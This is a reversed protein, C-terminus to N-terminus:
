WDGEPYRTVVRTRVRAMFRGAAAFATTMGLSRALKRTSNFDLRRRPHRAEEAAVDAASRRPRIQPGAERRAESQERREHQARSADVSRRWIAWGLIVFSPALAIMMCLFFIGVASM